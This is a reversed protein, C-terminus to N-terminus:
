RWREAHDLTPRGARGSNGRAAIFAVLRGDPSFAPQSEGREGRTLQRATAGPETAVTYLHSVRRPKDAEERETPSGGPITETEVGEWSAVTFLVSSGDPAMVADAPSRMGMIDEFSVPRKQGSSSDPAVLSCFAATAIATSIWGPAWKTSRM